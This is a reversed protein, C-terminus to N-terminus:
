HDGSRKGPSNLSLVVLPGMLASFIMALGSIQISFDFASHVVVLLLTAVGVEPAFRMARRRKLGIRFVHLLAAIAFGVLAVAIFGFTFLGELYVNHARNWVGFLGCRADRYAPFVTEFSALGAGFPLQNVIASIIGPMVCYRTDGVGGVEARLLTRGGLFQVVLMLVVAIFLFKLGRSLWRPPAGSAVRTRRSRRGHSKRFLRCVFFCALALVCALLGARSKTLMLAILCMSLGVGYALASLKPQLYWWRMLDARDRPDGLAHMFLAWNLVVMLGFYTAATNRNVFFGTLSDLYAQKPWFLLTDPALEFQLISLLAVAGGSVALVRIAGLARVDSDFLLLSLIFVGLPLAIRLASGWDDGPSLSIYAGADPALNRVDQWAPAASFGHPLASAQISVWALALAMLWLAAVLAGRSQYQGQDQGQRPLGDKIVSVLILVFVPVCLLAVTQLEVAGYNLQGILMVIWYIAVLVSHLGLHGAQKMVSVSM